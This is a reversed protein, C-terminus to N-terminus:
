LPCGTFFNYREDGVQREEFKACTGLIEENFDLVSTQM